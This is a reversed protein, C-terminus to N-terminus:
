KARLAPVANAIAVDAPVANAVASGKNNSVIKIM